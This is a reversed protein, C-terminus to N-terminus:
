IKISQLCGCVISFIYYHDTFTHNDGSSTTKKKKNKNSTGNSNNQEAGKMGHGNIDENKKAKYPIMELMSHKSQHCIYSMM